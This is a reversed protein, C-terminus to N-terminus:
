YSVAYYLIPVVTLSLLALQRDIFFTIWFMGVLTLASQALPPVAMILTAAAHAQFNIAYIIMGARGQEHFTLSLRQAHRFLDSRFDLVIQQEIRTNVYSEFVQLANSMLAIGFSAGVTLVLLTFRDAAAFGLVNNLIPPLPHNGLVSDILIKLPWPTLLAALSSLVIISVSVIALKWHPRLYPMVRLVLRLGVSEQGSEQAPTPPSRRLRLLVFGGILGLSATWVGGLGAYIAFAAFLVALFLTRWAQRKGEAPAPGALKKLLRLLSFSGVSM